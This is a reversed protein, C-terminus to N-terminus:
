KNMLDPILNSQTILRFKMEGEYIKLEPMEKQCDKLVQLNEPKYTMIETHLLGYSIYKYELKMLLKLAEPKTM